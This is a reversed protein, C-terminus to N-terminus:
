PGKLPAMGHGQTREDGAYFADWWREGGAIFSEVPIGNGAPDRIQLEDFWICLDLIRDGSDQFLAISHSVGDNGSRWDLSLRDGWQELRKEHLDIYEWGYIPLGGFSQVTSLLEEVGFPVVEADPDDWRGNRLSAAIRGVPHFLIQARCDEPEPGSEPLTLVWFTAGAIRRSPDLEVGLLTAENLAVGLGARQEETM